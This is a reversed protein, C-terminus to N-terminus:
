GSTVLAPVPVPQLRQGDWHWLTVASQETTLWLGHGGRDRRVSRVPSPVTFLRSPAAGTLPFRTMRQDSGSCCNTMAAVAHNDLFVPALPTSDDPAAKADLGVVRRDGISYVSAGQRAAVYAIRAGDPSWNLPWEPPNGELRKGGPLAVATEIGPALQHVVLTTRYCFEGTRAYRLYALRRGDASFSAAAGDVLRHLIRDPGVSFVTATCALDHDNVVSVLLHRGDPSVDILDVEDGEVGTVRGLSRPSTGDAAISVIDNAPTLVVVQDTAIAPSLTAM